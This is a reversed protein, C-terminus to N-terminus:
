FVKNASETSAAEYSETSGDCETSGDSEVFVATGVETPQTSIKELNGTKSSIQELSM